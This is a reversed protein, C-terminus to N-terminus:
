LYWSWLFSTAAMEVDSADSPPRRHGDPALFTKIMPINSMEAAYFFDLLLLSPSTVLFFFFVFSKLCAYKLWAWSAVTFFSKDLISKLVRWVCFFLSQSYQLDLIKRLDSKSLPTLHDSKHLLSKKNGKLNQAGVQCSGWLWTWEQGPSVHVGLTLSM